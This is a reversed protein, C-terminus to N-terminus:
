RSVQSWDAPTNCNFVMDSPVDSYAAVELTSLWSQFSLDGSALHQNLSPVAGRHYFGCLPEWGKAGKVLSAAPAVASAQSSLSAQSVLWSWWQQLIPADLNPLDCALLLCWDAQIQPWAQSFGVLPGAEQSDTIWQPELNTAFQYRDPWPTVVSVDPTLSRAVNVTRNLLRQGDPLKLLAKDQGMRRSRGGALIVCALQPISGKLVSM